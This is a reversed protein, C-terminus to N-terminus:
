KKKVENPNENRKVIDLEYISDCIKYYYFKYISSYDHNVVGENMAKIYEEKEGPKNSSHVTEIGMIGLEKM